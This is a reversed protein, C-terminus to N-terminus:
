PTVHGGALAARVSLDARTFKRSSQSLPRRCQELAAAEAATLYLRGYRDGVQEWMLNSSLLAANLPHHNILISDAKGAANMHVWAACEIPTGRIQARYSEMFFCTGVPGRYTFNQFEYLPIAQKLLALITEKGQVPQKLVTAELTVDDALNAIWPPPGALPTRDILRM